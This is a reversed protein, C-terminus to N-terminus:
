PSPPKPHAPLAEHDRARGRRHTLRGAASPSAANARAPPATSCAPPPSRYRRVLRCELLEAQLGCAALPKTWLAAATLMQDASRARFFAHIQRLRGPGSVATNAIFAKLAAWIREVRNDHPSYRAREASWISVAAASQVL